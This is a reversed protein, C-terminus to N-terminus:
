LYERVEVTRGLRSSADAAYVVALNEHAVRGDVEPTRDERVCDAFDELADRFMDGEPMDYVVDEGLPDRDVHLRIPEPAKSPDRWQQGTIRFHAVGKTGHVNMHFAWPCAWGGGVYSLAGSEHELIMM